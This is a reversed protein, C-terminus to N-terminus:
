GLSFITTCNSTEIKKEIFSLHPEIYGTTLESVSSKQLSQGIAPTAFSGRRFCLIEEPRVRGSYKKDRAQKELCLKLYM